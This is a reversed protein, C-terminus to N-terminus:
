ENKNLDNVLAAASGDVEVVAGDNAIAVPGVVIGWPVM